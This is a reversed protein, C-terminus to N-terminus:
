ASGRQEIVFSAKAFLLAKHHSQFWAQAFKEAASFMCSAGSLVAQGHPLM